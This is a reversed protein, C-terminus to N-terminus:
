PGKLRITVGPPLQPAAPPASMNNAPGPQPAAQPMAGGTQAAAIRALEDPIPLGASQIQAVIMRAGGNSLSGLAQVALRRADNKRTITAPDDGPMPVFIQSYMQFEKDTVAAGTDPRLISALFSNAGQYYQRAEPSSMVMNSLVQSTAGNKDGVGAMYDISNSFTPSSLSKGYDSALIDDMTNSGQAGRSAFMAYKAQTETLKGFQDPTGQAISKMPMAGQPLPAGTMADVPVGDPRVRFMGMRGDSTRYGETDPAAMPKVPGSIMPTQVGLAAQREPSLYVQEGTGVRTDGQLFKDREVQTQMRTQELARANDAANRGYAGSEQMAREQLFRQNDATNRRDLGAQEIGVGQFTNNANGNMLFMPTDFDSPRAQPNSQLQRYSNGLIASKIADPNIGADVYPRISPDLQQMAAARRAEEDRMQQAKAGALVDQPSPPAFLKAINGIGQAFAPDQTIDYPRMYGNAM